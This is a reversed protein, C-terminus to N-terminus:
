ESDVALLFPHSQVEATTPRKDPRTKLIRTVLDRASQSVFNPFPHVMGVTTRQFIEKFSKAQFPFSGCLLAYLISGLAWTDVAVPNYPQRLIIEPAVTHPSGCWKTLPKDTEFRTAFGFDCLSVELSHEDVLVNEIKLDRHAVKNNHCFEVADVIQKFIVRITEASLPRNLFVRAEDEYVDLLQIISPHAQLSQLIDIEQNLEKRKEESLAKKEVIKVAVKKSPSHRSFGLYVSANSGRGLVKDSLLYNGLVPMTPQQQAHQM